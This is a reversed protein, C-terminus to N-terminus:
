ASRKRGAIRAVADAATVEDYSLVELGAFLTRLEGPELLHDPSTPGRGLARQRTTFTEYLVVGGPVLAQVIAPVLDRQLYRTVVILEFRGRPLPHETLDACWGRVVLGRKAAASVAGCVADLKADVGFVRYGARVLTEM